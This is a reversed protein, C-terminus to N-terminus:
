PSVSCAHCPLVPQVPDCQLNTQWSREVYDPLLLAEKLIPAKLSKEHRIDQRAAGLRFFLFMCTLYSKAKRVTVATRTGM